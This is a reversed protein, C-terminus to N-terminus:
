KKPAKEVTAKDPAVIGSCDAAIGNIKAYWEKDTLNDRTKNLDNMKPAACACYSATGEKLKADMEPYIMTWEGACASKVKDETLNALGSDSEVNDMADHLLIQSMCLQAAKDIAADSNLPMNAACDCYKEGFNKYGVKDSTKDGREMWSKVCATKFVEDLKNASEAAYTSLPLMSVVAVAILSKMTRFRM